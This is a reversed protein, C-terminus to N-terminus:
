TEMPTATLSATLSPSPTPSQTPTMMGGNAEWLHFEQGALTVQPFNGSAGITITNAPAFYDKLVTGEPFTSTFTGQTVSSTSTNMSVIVEENNYIRSFCLVGPGATAGHRSVMTGRRLAASAARATGLESVLIYRPSTTIFSSGSLGPSKFQGAFMDERDYPDTGGSFDQETGYYLIPPGPATFLFVLALDLRRLREAPGSGANDAALNLFRRQDHSDLWNPMKLNHLPLATARNLMRNILNKPPQNATAFVGNTQYYFQFDLAGDLKYPGGNMTGLYTSMSTDDGGYIEGFTYFNQAGETISEAKLRPLFDEFFAVDVHKVTDIRFGSVGTQQMWYQWISFMNDRVYQTETQLDDLGSLEGLKQEPDVYNGINGQAHFYSLQNFPAPYHLSNRWKLTYSAPPTKYSPYGSGSSNILDGCHNVVMDFYIAIGMANAEDVLQKAKTMTGFNPDVNYWNYAGYGHYSNVNEVIPTLWIGNFGMGKIYDLKQRIGELDGGHFAGPNAPSYTGRTNGHNNSSDGDNFRDVFIQYIM